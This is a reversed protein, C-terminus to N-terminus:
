PRPKSWCTRGSGDRAPLEFALPRGEQTRGVLIPATGPKMRLELISMEARGIVGLIAAQKDLGGRALRIHTLDAPFQNLTPDVPLWRGRGGGAAIWVEPWAHYYFAGHLHVLGVAVRSPIGAARALAVYLATHENCDGVRTRLVELASPLSITPRKELLANVHRVLREARARQGDIGALATGAEAVIEPADSELFTEPQLLAGLDADPTVPPLTEPDRLEIEDGRVSQGAGQLEPSALDAGGLRVRLLDVSAPDDIRREPRPVVAAAQYMDNQLQNSVAVVIAKERPEQVVILGMPSEERVVEGTETVWSHSTIGAFTTELKYTPLPRDNIRVVDRALVEVTMPANRLTAPDFMSLSYRRGPALGEAALRRPLNLALNPQEALERTESRTGSKSEVKLRLRKGDLEGDVSLAGTGPDISFSFSRPAFSKDVVVTTRIRAPTSAGMLALQLQGDERIEFGDATPLTESVSFGIKEGRYYIGRWHATRGYRSLDAALSVPAALLTHQLLVGMQVLWALLVLLSLPRTLVRPLPRLLLLGM